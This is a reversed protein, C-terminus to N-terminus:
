HKRLACRIEKPIQQRSRKEKWYSQAHSHSALNGREDKQEYKCAMMHDQQVKVGKWVVAPQPCPSKAPSMFHDRPDFSALPDVCKAVLCCGVNEALCFSFLKGRRKKTKRSSFLFGLFQLDIFSANELQETRRRTKGVSARSSCCRCAGRRDAGVFRRRLDARYPRRNRWM